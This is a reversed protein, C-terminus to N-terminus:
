GSAQDVILVTFPEGGKPTVTFSLGWHGVMVLAPTTRSVVGPATETLQYEQTGMTMDLMAFTATVDAGTVPRGNKTIQLAFTNPAAAKNPDVLLKLTYGDQHVVAAVKGPGVKAAASGEESLYKSPPALSTLLAAALIATVVILM